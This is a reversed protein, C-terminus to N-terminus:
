AGLVAVGPYDSPQAMRGPALLEREVARDVGSLFDRQVDVERYGMAGGRLAEGLGEFPLVVSMAVIPKPELLLQELLGHGFIIQLLRGEGQLRQVRVQRAGLDEEGLSGLGAVVDPECVLLQGGEDLMTLTDQEKTRRSFDTDGGEVRRQKAEWQRRHLARKARPFTIWVLANFLDHWNDSRTPVIGQEAIASDYALASAFPNNRGRRRGKPPMRVFRVASTLADFDEPVSPWSTRNSLPEGAVRLHWYAARLALFNPRYGSMQRASSLTTVAANTVWLGRAM